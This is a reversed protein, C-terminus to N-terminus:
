FREMILVAAAAVVKVDTIRRATDAATVLASLLVIVLQIIVPLALARTVLVVSTLVKPIYTLPLPPAVAVVSGVATVEKVAVTGAEVVTFANKTLLQVILEQPLPIAKMPVAMAEEVPTVIWFLVIPADPAGEGAM